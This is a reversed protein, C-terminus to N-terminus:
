TGRENWARFVDWRKSWNEEAELWEPASPCYQDLKILFTSGDGERYKRILGIEKAVGPAQASYSSWFVYVIDSDKIMTEAQESWEPQRKMELADINCHIGSAELAEAFRSVLNGDKHAYCIFASRFVQAETKGCVSVSSHGRIYEPQIRGRFSIDRLKRKIDSDVLIEFNIRGIAIDDVVIWL